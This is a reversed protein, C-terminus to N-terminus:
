SAAFARGREPKKPVRRLSDQQALPEARRAERPPRLRPCGHSGQSGHARDPERFSQQTYMAYFGVRAQHTHTHTIIHTHTHNYIHTHTRTNTHTHNAQIPFMAQKARVVCMQNSNYQFGRKASKSRQEFPFRFLFVGQRKPVVSVDSHRLGAVTVAQRCKCLFFTCFTCLKHRLIMKSRVWHAVRSDFTVIGPSQRVRGFRGFRGFTERSNPGPKPAM